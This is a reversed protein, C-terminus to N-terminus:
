AQGGSLVTGCSLCPQGVTQDAAGCWNCARLADEATGIKRIGTWLADLRARASAEGGQDSAANVIALRVSDDLNMGHTAARAAMLLERTSVPSFTDSARTDGAFKCLIAADETGIGTAEQLVAAEQLPALYDMPYVYCRSSFAPDVDYTGTFRYGVNGGLVIYVTPDLAIAEGTIPNMVVRTGDMLPLLVNRVDNPTRTYEDIFVLTEPTTLAAVFESPRYFTSGNAAERVGFWAEADVMSAADIKVYALGATQALWRAGDTKGCGSPGHMALVMPHGGRDAAEARIMKWTEVLSKHPVYKHGNATVPDSHKRSIPKREITAITPSQVPEAPNLSPGANVAPASPKRQYTRTPTGATKAAKWDAFYAATCSKCRTKGASFEAAPADHAPISGYGRCQQQQQDM